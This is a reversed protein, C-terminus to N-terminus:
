TGLTFYFTAGQGPKSEAWIKGQHRQIVRAVTALGIGNGPYDQVAHLRQFPLFLKDAYAPNFGVGNDRVFFVTQGDRQQSGVEIRAHDTKNTFKFANSILNDLVIEILKADGQAQLYPQIHVDVLRKPHADRMMLVVDGALTSLNVPKTALRTNNVRTLGIMADISQGMRQAATRTRELLYRGHDDLLPLYQKLLQHSFGDIARLPAMLDHSVSYSFANLAEEQTRIQSLAKELEQRAVVQPTVDTLCATRYTTDGVRFGTAHNNVWVVSGDPRQYRLTFELEDVGSHSNGIVRLYAERDDPHILDVTHWRQGIASTDLGVLALWAPNAYNLLNDSEGDRRVWRVIGVPLADLMRHNLQPVRADDLEPFPIPM